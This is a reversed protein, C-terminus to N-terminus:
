PRTLWRERSVPCIAAAIDKARPSRMVRGLLQSLLTERQAAHEAAESLDDRAEAERMATYDRDWAAHLEGVLEAVDDGADGLRRALDFARGRAGEDEHMHALASALEAWLARAHAQRFAPDDPMTPLELSLVGFDIVLEVPAGAADRGLWTAYTGDGYGSPFAIRQMPEDCPAELASTVVDARCGEDMFCALGHDVGFGFLQGLPLARVDEGPRVALEHTVADGARVRALAVHVEGGRRALLVEVDHTGAPLAVAFAPPPPTYPDCAVIRGSTSLRGVRRRELVMEDQAVAEFATCLRM